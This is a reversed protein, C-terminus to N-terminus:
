CKHKHLSVDTGYLAEITKASLASKPNGSCLMRKNICIVHTAMTNVVTIEHSVMVITVKYREKVKKILEYFNQEGGIDVGSVPEDLFLIAPKSLLARAILVRQLQGGSLAGLLKDKFKDAGISELVSDIAAETAKRDSFRLFERVTIPFTRDFDLKQPVYGIKYRVESPKEGFLLVTGQTPRLLGLLIKLLTTKGSGNPGILMVLAGKEVGFSINRLVYDSDRYAFSVDKVEIIKTTHM